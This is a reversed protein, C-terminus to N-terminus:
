GPVGPGGASTGRARRAAVFSRVCLVVYVGTILAMILQAVPGVAVGKRALGIVGMPGSALFGLLAVTVAAHLLHMRLNPKALSLWGLLMLAAGFYAPILATASPKAAGLQRWFVYCIVGELVLLIGAVITTKAM